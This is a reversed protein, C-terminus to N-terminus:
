TIFAVKVTTGNQSSVSLQWNQHACLRKVISLGFGFGTSKTGKIAPETVNDSINPEIGPGTDQIVLANDLYSINVEGSLTYQFANSLLNDLLVKLMGPQAYIRTHCSNAINIDVKKGVLLARNDITSQEILPMLQVNEKGQSTNEERALMLLTYVTKEMNESAEAIRHLLKKDESNSTTQTTLLEAANKIIALPTRLEHSVDRTFCKERDLTLSIRHLSKEITSALIGVENNPYHKSFDRPIVEPEVGDVLEALEKLPRTTKRSILWAILCAFISVFLTSISLFQIVGSRIPRVFLENSVEAVLFTNEYQPFTYLHYHKGNNGTFETRRPEEISIEMFDAPFTAKTFHLQMNPRRTPPWEGTQQYGFSLYEAELQIEKRFFNDELTYMLLFSILGYVASIAFTFICFQIVIRRSLSHFKDPREIMIQVRQM